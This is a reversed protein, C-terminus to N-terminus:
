SASPRSRWRAPRWPRASTIGFAPYLVGMAVPILVVNYAFAWFLNQRIVRMTRRSLAIASAVLRPDGGVITVDSAEIAVDAGTGIAIGLDAQALAPADNIGDGVMAVRRGAVQLAEITAAKDAPLVEARVREPPIGVRRGVATAVPLSDGTLLWVELGAGALAEIAEAAAPRVPDAVGILGAARGDVAVVVVTQGEAAAREIVPGLPGLDVGREAMLRPNGVVVSRTAEAADGSAGVLGEVGHGALARFEAVVRFGLEQERGAALIAAGLPHESGRELSAALDLLETDTMGAVPILATVTPHGVTLTGTKDFVVTDIRGASELAQGGRILIGSEAGRGTGVMIATPTALGMACPCAIVVVTVFATLALTLRPEPGLALWAVFALAALVLVIPVFIESIRDALRQIPAKSGQARRVMEVIRALATESGVRTARFVFTGTTNLTAGIVEDGVTRDVPISEGTIMSEDIASGGEVIVGDVPVKEGPRVRVLDGPHVEALDVDVEGGARVVRATKAGLGVLRRIAGATRGKARGELWRGLLILGVIITSSDFYTEPRLGARVVVEPFLTVVVSYAWAASTGAAVLSDMNATGHRLARWAARYFRGGAWVQVFTAPVIVLRNLTELPVVAQPWFMAVMIAGAVGISVGAQIALTRQERARDADDAALADDSAPYAADIAPDAAAREQPRLRRSRDGRCARGSRGREPLYRITAIETALNVVAGEVGPTRSLFREIRNVCSACTMGAIPLEVEVAGSASVTAPSRVTSM